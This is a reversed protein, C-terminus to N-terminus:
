ISNHEGREREVDLFHKRDKKKKTAKESSFAVM